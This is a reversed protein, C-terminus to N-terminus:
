FPYSSILEQIRGQIGGIHLFLINSGKKFFDNVLLDYVGFMVKGTYVQDLPITHNVEFEKIFSLLAPTVKAYGGFHYNTNIWWNTCQSDGVLKQIDDKLFEGKLASIGIIEKNPISKIIGALTGGTGVACAYYDFQQPLNSAFEEVGKIALNNTGGEPILYFDGFLKQLTHIFRADKKTRYQERTVYHLHMGHDKCFQLTNNLPLTEEGRIIGIAKMGTEKAAAATAYLHNSYAGGFTLLTTKNQRKAELLNYKLKWWKNGSISPHNLDERKVFLRV